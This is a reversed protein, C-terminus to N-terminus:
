RYSSNHLKFCSDCRALLVTCYQVTCYFVTCYLVTSYFVLRLAKDGGDSADLQSVAYKAAKIVNPDEKGADETGGDISDGAMGRGANALLRSARQGFPMWPGAGPRAEVALSLVALLAFLRLFM